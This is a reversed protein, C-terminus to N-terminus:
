KEAMLIYNSDCFQQNNHTEENIDISVNHFKSFYRALEEREFFHMIMGDESHACRNVNKECVIITNKKKKKENKIDYRYDNITRVVLLLRGGPKLVRWIENIAKEIESTRLYYLTGYCIIGDFFNETYPLDTLNGVQMNVVYKDMGYKMLMKQIYAIGEGSFDIGYPIINENGMFFIHRGAGCGLDLIKTKGDRPFNRFVFQVVIEAPYKPRYRGNKHLSIWQERNTEM